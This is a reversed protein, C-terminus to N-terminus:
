YWIMASYQMMYFWVGNAKISMATGLILASLLPKRWQTLLYISALCLFAMIQDNFMQSELVRVNHNSLLLLCIFQAKDKRGVFYQYSIMGMLTNTSSHLIIHFVKLYFYANQPFLNMLKLVLSYFYINGAPSFLSGHRSYINAYDTNGM